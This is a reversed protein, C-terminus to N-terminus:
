CTLLTADGSQCTGAPRDTDDGLFPSWVMHDQADIGVLAGVGDDRDVLEAALEALAGGAGGALVMERQQAPGLLEPLLPQPGDLVATVQRAPHLAVQEAGALPDHADRGLQHGM